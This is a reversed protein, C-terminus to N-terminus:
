AERRAFHRTGVRRERMESVLTPLGLMAWVGRNSLRDSPILRLTQAILADTDRPSAVLGDGRADRRQM